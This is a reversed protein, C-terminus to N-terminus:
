QASCVLMRDSYLCPLSMSLSGPFSIYLSCHQLAIEYLKTHVTLPVHLEFYFLLHFATATTVMELYCHCLLMITNPKHAISVIYFKTLWYVCANKMIIM